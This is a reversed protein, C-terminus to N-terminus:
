ADLCKIRKQKSKLKFSTDHNISELYSKVKYSSLVEDGDDILREFQEM